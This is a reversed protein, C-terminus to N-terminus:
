QTKPILPNTQIVEITIFPITFSIVSCFTFGISSIYKEKELVFPVHSFARV